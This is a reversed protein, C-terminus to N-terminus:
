PKLGDTAHELPKLGVTAHELPGATPVTLREEVLVLFLSLAEQQLLSQVHLRIKTGILSSPSYTKRSSSAASMEHAHGFLKGTCEDEPQYM